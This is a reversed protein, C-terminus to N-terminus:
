RQTFRQREEAVMSAIAWIPNSDSIARLTSWVYQGPKLQPFRGAWTTKLLRDNGAPTKTKPQPKHDAKESQRTSNM